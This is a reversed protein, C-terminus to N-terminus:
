NRKPIFLGTLVTLIGIILYNFPAGTNQMGITKAEDDSNKSGGLVTIRTKVTQVDKATVTAIGSGKDALFNVNTQGHVWKGFLTGGVDNGKVIDGLDTQYKVRNGSFYAQANKIHNGGKVDSYVDTTIHSTQGQLIETPNARIKMILWPYYTLIGNNKIFKTKSPHNTGYWNYPAHINRGVMKDMENTTNHIISLVVPIKDRPVKKQILYEVLQEEYQKGTLGLGFANFETSNMNHIYHDFNVIRNYSIIVNHGLGAIGEDLGNGELNNGFILTKIMSMTVISKSLNSKIKSVKNQFITTDGLSVGQIASSSKSASLDTVVNKGVKVYSKNGTYDVGAYSIGTVTKQASEKSIMNNLIFADGACVGVFSLGTSTSNEGRSIIRNIINGRINLDGTTLTQNSNTFALAVFSAATSSANTHSSQINTIMNNNMDMGSLLGSLALGVFSVGTAKTKGYINSIKNGYIMLRNLTANMTMGFTDLGKAEKDFSKINYITNGALRFATTTKLGLTGMLIGSKSGKGVINMIKNGILISYTGWLAVGYNTSNHIRNNILKAGDGLVSIGTIGGIIWNNKVRNNFPSNIILKPTKKNKILTSNGIQISSNFPRSIVNGSILTNNGLALIGVNGGTIHNNLINCNNSLIKFGTGRSLNSIKFGSITSGTGQNFVTFGVKTPKIFVPNGNVVRITLKKNVNVNERYIGSYVNIVDNTHTNPSNIAAQISNYDKGQGVSWQTANVSGLSLILILVLFVIGIIRNKKLKDEVM